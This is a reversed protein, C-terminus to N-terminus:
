GREVPMAIVERLSEAGAAVMALRDVGLAVGACDPLGAALAALPREDVAVAERGAARRAELDARFRRRQEAPDALEHFGNVLEVTPGGLPCAASAM